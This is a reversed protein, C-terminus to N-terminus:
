KKWGYGWISVKDRREESHINDTDELQLRTSVRDNRQKLLYM